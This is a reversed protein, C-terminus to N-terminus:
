VLRTHAQKLSSVSLGVRQFPRKCEVTSNCSRCLIREERDSLFGWFSCCLLSQMVRLLKLNVAVSRAAELRQLNSERM